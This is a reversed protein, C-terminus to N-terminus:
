SLRGKARQARLAEIEPTTTDNPRARYLTSHPASKENEPRGNTYYYVALSKRSMGQPCQLPDPHGHLAQDSVNFIVMRNFLPEINQVRHQMDRSWLELGGGYQSDWKRNLYILVNVRRDLKTIPHYNYDAHIDLKGGREIRHLGGGNLHPDTILGTIGTLTELFKLFEGSNLEQFVQTYLPPLLTLRNTALKKEFVNDYRYWIPNDPAPFNALLDLTPTACLNDLVAHPIPQAAAYQPAASIAVERLQDYDFLQM